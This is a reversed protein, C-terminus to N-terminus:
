RTFVTRLGNKQIKPYKWNEKLAAGSRFCLVFYKWLVRFISSRPASHNAPHEAPPVHVGDNHMITLGAPAPHKGSTLGPEAYHLQHGVYHDCWSSSGLKNFSLGKLIPEGGGPWKLELFINTSDM